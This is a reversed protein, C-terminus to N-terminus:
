RSVYKAEEKMEIYRLTKRSIERFVPAAICGGWYLYSPEDVVVLIAIKPRDAPVFGAFSAVYKTKSYDGTVPDIKQATGTKGAVEYGSLNALTGTGEKVASKLIEVMRKATNSEISRRVVTPRFKFIEKDDKVISKVIGPKMLYGGNAISAFARIIQISTAAVEQGMPVATISLKSWERPERITGKIEGPLDINTLEGFGFKKAYKYVLEQGSKMGVKVMGINNSYTVVQKFTILGRPEHDHIEHNFIKWEGNECYIKDDEKFSNSELAASATVIKFTSGPEFVDTVVRNRREELASSSYNNLNFSPLNALALIEGTFPDMIIVSASKARYEMMVKRLESEAIHQIVEDITLTIFAGTKPKSFQKVNSIMDRGLADKNIIMWGNGGTLLRDYTLEIGELGKNDLGAFGIVHCALEANPYFRKTENVFGMGQFNYKSIKDAEFPDLKRKIWLFNCKKNLREYTSEQKLNFLDSLTSAILKKESNLGIKSPVAYLSKVNLSVALEKGNRDYITGRPSNIEIMKIQQFNAM